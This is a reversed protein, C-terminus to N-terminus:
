STLFQNVPIVFFVLINWFVWNIWRIGHHYDSVVTLNVFHELDDRPSKCLLSLVHVSLFVPLECCHSQIPQTEYEDGYQNDDTQKSDGQWCRMKFRSYSHLVQILVLNIKFFDVIENNQQSFSLFFNDFRSFLFWYFISPLFTMALSPNQSPRRSIIVVRSLGLHSPASSDSADLSSPIWVM